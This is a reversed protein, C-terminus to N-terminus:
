LAMENIKMQVQCSIEVTCSEESQECLLANLAKREQELEDVRQQLYSSDKGHEQMSLIKVSLFKIKDNILSLVLERADALPYINDILKVQHKKM